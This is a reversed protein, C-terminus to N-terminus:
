AAETAARERSESHADFRGLFELIGDDRLLVRDGTRLLRVSPEFPHPIFREANLDPRNRYGRPLCRGGICLEGSSPYLTPQGNEDLIAIFVGTAPYGLPVVVNESADNMRSYCIAPLGDVPSYGNVITTNANRSRLKRMCNAPLLGATVILQRLSGLDDLGFDVLQQAQEAPLNLVTVRRRRVFSALEKCSLNDATAITLRGGHLLAGWIGFVGGSSTLPEMLPLVDNPGLRLSGDDCILRTISDHLIEIWAAAGTADVSAVLFAINDGSLSVAPAAACGWLRDGDLCIVTAPAIPILSMMRRQAVIIPPCLDDLLPRIRDRSEAPDILYCAGGAKLIGLTAVIGEISREACLGVPMDPRVGSAILTRAIQNARHDLEAYTLREIATEVAIANPYRSAQIEFRRHILSEPM